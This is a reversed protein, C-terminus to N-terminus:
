IPLPVIIRKRWMHMCIIKLQMQSVHQKNDNPASLPFSLNICLFKPSLHFLLYFFTNRREVCISIIIFICLYYYAYIYM